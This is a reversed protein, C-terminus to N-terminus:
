YLGEVGRGFACVFNMCTLSTPFGKGVFNWEIKKTEVGGGGGNVPHTCGYLCWM